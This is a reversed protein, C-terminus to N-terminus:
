ASIMWDTDLHELGDESELRFYNKKQNKEKTWHPPTLWHRKQPALRRRTGEGVGEALLPGGEDDAGFLQAQKALPGVVRGQHGLELGEDGLALGSVVQRIRTLRLGAKRDDHRRENQKKKRKTRRRREEDKDEDKDEDEEKKNKNKNKKNKKNKNKEHM